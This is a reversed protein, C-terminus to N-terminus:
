RGERLDAGLFRPAPKGAAMHRMWILIAIYISLLVMLVLQGIPSKYPQIYTGSATLILLIGSSILTVGRATARPKARDAEIQRRARVDAAVSEALGELVTALGPGRRRAGLILAAAILDGTADDLEDAFSRLADETMWRARLRAVLRNVEAAIPQPASRLTAALAQELGVGVTLVGSLSRTWEEMAELRDIRTAAPPASLLTPLGVAAVPVAVLALGWGTALWIVSGAALGGLLLARTRRPLRQFRDLGRSRSTPREQIETPRLAVVLGLIGAVVLAGGIAPVLAIM